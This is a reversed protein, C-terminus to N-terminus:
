KQRYFMSWDCKPYRKKFEAYTIIEGNGSKVANEYCISGNRYFSGSNKYPKVLGLENDSIPVKM